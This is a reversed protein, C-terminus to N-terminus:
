EEPMPPLGHEKRWQNCSAIFYSALEDSVEDVIQEETKPQGTELNVLGPRVFFLPQRGSKASKPKARSM